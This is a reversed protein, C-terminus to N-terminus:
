QNKNTEETKKTNKKLSKRAQNEQKLQRKKLLHILNKQHVNRKNKIKGTEIMIKENRKKDIKIKEKKM